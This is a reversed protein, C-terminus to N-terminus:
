ILYFYVNFSSITTITRWAESPFFKHFVTSWVATIVILVLSVFPVQWLLFTGATM